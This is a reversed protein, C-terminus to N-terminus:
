NSMRLDVYNKTDLTPQLSMTLTHNAGDGSGTNWHSIWGKFAYTCLADQQSDDQWFEVKIDKIKERTVVNALDFLTKLTSFPMNTNDHMDVSVQINCSLSGMMPMGAVESVTSLAVNVAFANFKNGDITVTTVSPKAM